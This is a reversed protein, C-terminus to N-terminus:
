ADRMTLLRAKWGLSEYLSKTARDGPLAYADLPAGPEALIARVLTTAVRHRRWAPKVYVAQLVSDRVVALGKLDEADEYTWLRGADVLAGLLDSPSHGESLTAVLAEGGRRAGVDHLAHKWLEELAANVERVRQSSM